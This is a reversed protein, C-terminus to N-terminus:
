GATISFGDARAAKLWRRALELEREGAADVDIQWSFKPAVGRPNKRWTEFAAAIDAPTKGAKREKSQPGRIIRGLLVPRPTKRVKNLQGIISAEHVWKGEFLAPLEPVEHTLTARTQGEPVPPGPYEFTFGGGDLVALDVTWRDRTANPEKAFPDPADERFERPVIAVLRGEINEWLPSPTFGGGKVDASTAFVDDDDVNATAFPDDLEQDQTM